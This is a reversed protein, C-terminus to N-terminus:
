GRGRRWPRGAGVGAAWGHPRRVDYHRARETHATRSRGTVVCWPPSPPRTPKNPPSAPSGTCSKRAPASATWAAPTASSASSRGHQPSNSAPPRHPASSVNRPAPTAAATTADPAGPHEALRDAVATLLRPQNGKVTMVYGAGAEDLITATAHQTHLADFTFVMGAMDHGAARLDDLLTAVMPIENTKGPVVHQGLVMTREHTAAALLHPAVQEGTRAGRVTKGDIAVALRGCVDGAEPLQTATWAAIVAEFAELDVGTALRRITSESPARVAGTLPDPCGRLRLLLGRSASAAWQAAGTFSEFGSCAFSVVLVGLVFAL